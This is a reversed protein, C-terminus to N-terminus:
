SFVVPRMDPPLAKGNSPERTAFRTSQGAAHSSPITKQFVGRRWETDKHAGYTMPPLFVLYFYILLPSELFLNFKSKNNNSLSEAKEARSISIM